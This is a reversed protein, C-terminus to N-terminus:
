AYVIGLSILGNAYDSSLMLIILQIKSGNINM